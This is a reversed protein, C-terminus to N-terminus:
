ADVATPPFGHLKGLKLLNVLLRARTEHFSRETGLGIGVQNSTPCVALTGLDHCMPARESASSLLIDDCNRIEEADFDTAAILALAGAAHARSFAYAQNLISVEADQELISNRVRLRKGNIEVKQGWIGHIRGPATEYHRALQRLQTETLFLDDDIALYRQFPLAAAVMLRAIPGVNKRRCYWVKPPLEDRVTKKEDDAQDLVFVTAQPLADMVTRCIGAINQPRRYNMVIVALDDAHVPQTDTIEAIHDAM